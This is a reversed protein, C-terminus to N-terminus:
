VKLLTSSMFKNINILTTVKLKSWHEERVKNTFFEKKKQFILINVRVKKWKIIEKNM